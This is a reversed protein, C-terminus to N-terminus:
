NPRIQLKKECLLFTFGVGFGVRFEDVVCSSVFMYVVDKDALDCVDM